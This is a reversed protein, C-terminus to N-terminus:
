KDKFIFNNDAEALVPAKMDKESVIEKGPEIGWEIGLSKDAYSIGREYQPNYYEDTKYLVTAWESTVAFGHAFGGPIFLQLKNEASIEHGWWKGWTPSDKRLDVVVDFVTGEIVRLLKNQAYPALQYHLGRIVNRPSRSQNDQVFNYDLGNERFNRYNYSEYFYGRSDEFIRPSIILLGPMDTETIKM